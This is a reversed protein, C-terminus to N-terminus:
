KFLRKLVSLVEKINQGFFANEKKDEKKIEESLCKDCLYKNKYPTVKAQPFINQCKDCMVQNM